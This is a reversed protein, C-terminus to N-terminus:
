QGHLPQSAGGISGSDLGMARRMLLRKAPASCEIAAMGAQRLPVMAPPFRRGFVENLADFALQMVLNHTKQKREYRRLVREDAPYEGADRASLLTDGLRAADRLGLNMGQGALPHVVHAADGVLVIGSRAYRRAHRLCLRFSFRRSVPGLEGLVGASATQLEAIFAEDDLALLRDALGRPLTWVISSRGDSLPLFALPGDDLFRQWATDAHPQESQVHAVIATQRYDKDVIEIGAASRIHSDTGDAGVVLDAGITSGDNMGLVIRGNQRDLSDVGAGFELEAGHAGLEDLLVSRILSDEVIHGLNPEGIDAADFCVERGAVPSAGEFVKMRRYPSIRRAAVEAWAPGLLQQSERSLAYVRADIQDASWPAPSRADVIRLRFDSCRPDRMIQVAFLLGVPGAGVVVIEFSQPRRRM